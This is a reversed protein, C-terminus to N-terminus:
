IARGSIKEKKERCPATSERVVLTPAIKIYKDEPIEKAPIKGLLLHVAAKGREQWSEDISTLPAYACGCLDLNGFGCVSFDEPIAYGLRLAQHQIRLGIGDAICYFATPRIRSPLQLFSRAVEDYCDSFNVWEDQVELGVARMGALYGALREKQYYYKLPSCCMAIKRHGLSALHQVAMIGAKENDLTVCPFGNHPHEFLFVLDLKLRAAFTSIRNRPEERSSMALIKTIRCSHIEEFTNELNKDSFIKISYGCFSAEELITAIHRTLSSQNSAEIILAIM